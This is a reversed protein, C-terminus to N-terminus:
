FKYSLRARVVSFDTSVKDGGNFVRKDGLDVYLYEVGGVLNNTFAYEVGGGVTWGTHTNSDSNLGNITVGP